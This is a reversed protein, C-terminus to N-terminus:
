VAALQARGGPGVDNAWARCARVFVEFPCGEVLTDLDIWQEAQELSPWDGRIGHAAPHFITSLELAVPDIMGVAPGTTGFDIVVPTLDADVLVNLGHLDLHQTCRRVSVSRSEFQSTAEEDILQDLGARKDDPLLLRRVEGVEVTERPADETWRRTIEAVRGVVPGAEDPNERLVDFLSRDYRDAVSYFIAGKDGTGAFVLDTLPPFGVERKDPVRIPTPIM